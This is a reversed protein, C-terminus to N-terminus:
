PAFYGSLDVIFHTESLAYVSFSGGGLGVTFANSLVQGGVYNINSVMPRSAGSPYFTVYGASPSTTNVVTANGVVALAGAPVAQGQCAGTAAQTRSANATLPAGPTFCAPEGARTDLLRV